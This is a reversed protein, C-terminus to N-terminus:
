HKNKDHNNREKNLLFLLIKVEMEKVDLDWKLKLRQDTAHQLTRIISIMQDKNLQMKKTRWYKLIIM